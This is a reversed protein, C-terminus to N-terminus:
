PRVTWHVYTQGGVADISQPGSLTGGSGGSGDNDANWTVSLGPPLGAAVTGDQDTVTATGSLVTYTVSALTGVVDAGPTWAADADGILRHHAALGAAAAAACAGPTWVGPTVTNGGATTFVESIVAGDSDVTERRIAPAGDACVLEATVSPCCPCDVVSVTAEDVVTGTRLDTLSYTGDCNRIRAARAVDGGSNVETFTINSQISLGAGTPAYDWEITQVPGLFVLTATGDGGPGADVGTNALVVVGNGTVSDVPPSINRLQEGSTTGFFDLQIRVDTRPAGLNITTHQTAPATATNRIGNAQVAAGTDPAVTETVTIGQGGFDPNTWVRAGPPTTSTAGAWNDTITDGPVPPSYCVEGIVTPCDECVKITGVPSYPQGGLDSDRVVTLSGNVDTLLTRLFPGADDCLTLTEADTGPDVQTRTAGGSPEVCLGVEGTVVYPTTGDLATDTTATATGTCDRTITRLFQVRSCVGDLNVTATQFESEFSNSHLGQAVFNQWTVATVVLMLNPFASAPINNATISKLVPPGGPPLESSLWGTHAIRLGTAKNFVSMEAIRYNPDPVAPDDLSTNRMDATFTVDGTAYSCETDFDLDAGIIYRRVPSPNPAPAPGTAAPFTLLGASDWYAQEEGPNTPNQMHGQFTRYDSFFGTTPVATQNNTLTFDTPTAGPLVATDCLVLQETDGCPTAACAAVTSGVPPAVAAGTTPDTFRSFMRSGTLTDYGYEAIVQQILTGDAANLCLTATEVDTGAGAGQCISLQGQLVYTTGDDARVIRVSEIVGTDDYHYEVLVLAFVDGTAPDTDCFVGSVQVSQGAGCAVAGPAVGATYAGTALNLWGSQTVVGDCDRTAITAIPTGDALCLGTSTIPTTPSACPAASADCPAAGAPAPGETFVGTALNMWGPSSVTGDCDRAVVVGVPTGDALCLSSVALPTTTDCGDAQDGSCPAATGTVTYPTGAITVDTVTGDDLFIRVFQTVAGGPATDCFLLGAARGPPPCPCCASPAPTTM